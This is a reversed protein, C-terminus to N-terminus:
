YFSQCSTARPPVTPGSSDRHLPKAISCTGIFGIYGRGEGVHERAARGEGGSGTGLARPCVEHYRYPRSEGAPYQNCAGPRPQRGVLRARDGKMQQDFLVFYYTKANTNQLRWSSSSAAVCPRPRCSAHSSAPLWAAVLYPLERTRCRM